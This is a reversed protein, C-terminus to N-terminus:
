KRTIYNAFFVDACNRALSLNMREGKNKEDLAVALASIYQGFVTENQRIKVMLATNKRLVEETMSHCLKYKSFLAESGVKNEGFLCYARKMLSIKKGIEVDKEAFAAVDFFSFDGSDSREAAAVFSYFTNLKKKKESADVSNWIGDTMLTDNYKKVLACVKESTEYFKEEQKKLSDLAFSLERYLGDLEKSLKETETGQNGVCKLIYESDADNMGALVDSYKDFIDKKM